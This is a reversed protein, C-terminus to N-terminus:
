LETFLLLLLSLCHVCAKVSVQKCVSLSICCVDGLLRRGPDALRCKFWLTFWWGPGMLWDWLLLKITWYSESALWSTILFLRSWWCFHERNRYLHRGTAWSNCQLLCRPQSHHQAVLELWTVIEQHWTLLHWASGATFLGGVSLCLPSSVVSHSGVPSSFFVWNSM